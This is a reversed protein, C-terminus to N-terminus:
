LPMKLGSWLDLVLMMLDPRLREAVRVRLSNCPDCYTRLDPYRFHPVHYVLDMGYLALVGLFTRRPYTKACSPRRFRFARSLDHVLQLYNALRLDPWFM